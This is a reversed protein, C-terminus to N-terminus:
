KKRTVVREKLKRMQASLEKFAEGIADPLSYHKAEARLVKGLLDLNIEAYFVPGSQHHKSPKGVEVRLIIDQKSWRTLLRKLAAAKADVLFRISDSLEINKGHLITEMHIYGLSFFPLFCVGWPTLRQKATPLQKETALSEQAQSSEKQSDEEKSSKKKKGNKKFTATNSSRISDRRTLGGIPSYNKTVASWVTM